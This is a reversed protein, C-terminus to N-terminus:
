KNKYEDSLATNKRNEIQERAKERTAEELMWNVDALKSEYLNRLHAVETEAMRKTIAIEATLKTNLEKLTKKEETLKGNSGELTRVQGICLALRENLLKFEEEKKELFYRLAKKTPSAPPLSMM